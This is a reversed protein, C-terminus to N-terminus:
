NIPTKSRKAPKPLVIAMVKDTAENATFKGLRCDDIIDWIENEM